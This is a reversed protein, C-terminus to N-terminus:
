GELVDDYQREARRDGVWAIALLVGSFFVIAGFLGWQAWANAFLTFVLIAGIAGLLLVGVFKLWFGGGLGSDM